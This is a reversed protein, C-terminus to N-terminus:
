RAIAILCSEEMWVMILLISELRAEEDDQVRGLGVGWEEDSVGDDGIGREVDGEGELGVVSRRKLHFLSVVM